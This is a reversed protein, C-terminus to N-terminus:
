SPLQTSLPRGLEQFREVAQRRTHVQLKDYIRRILTHVTHYSVSLEDSIQKYLLGQALLRLVDMERSTLQELEPSKVLASRFANVVLRAISDSMPSGGEHVSRIASLLEARSTRKLLYGTAGAKLAEFILEADMYVTLMVFNTKPLLPKLERVCEIGSAGPLNIDCLLVDVPKLPLDALAQEANPYACMVEIGADKRLWELLVRRLRADDEVIAVRISM